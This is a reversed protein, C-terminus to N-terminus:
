RYHQEFMKRLWEANRRGVDNIFDERVPNFAADTFPNGLGNIESEDAYHLEWWGNRHIILVLNGVSVTKVEYNDM